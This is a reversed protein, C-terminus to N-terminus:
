IPSILSFLSVFCNLIPSCVNTSKRLSFPAPISSLGFAFTDSSNTGSSSFANPLSRLALSSESRTCILIFSIISFPELFFSSSSSGAEPVTMMLVPREPFSASFTDAGSGSSTLSGTLFSSTLFSSTTSSTFSVGTTGSTIAGSGFGTSGSGTFSDGTKSFFSSSAGFTDSVSGTM